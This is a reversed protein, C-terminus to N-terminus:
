RRILTEWSSIVNQLSRPLNSKERDMFQTSLYPTQYTTTSSDTSANNTRYNLGNLNPFRQNELVQKFTNIQNPSLTKVVIPKAKGQTIIIRGDATLETRSRNNASSSSFVINSGIPTIKGLPTFSIQIRSPVGSATANRVIRDGLHYVSNKKQNTVVVKWGYILNATCAQNPSEYIGLCGNFEEPKSDSIIFQNPSQNTEKALSQILKKATSIPLRVRDPNPFLRRGTLQTPNIETQSMASLTATSGIASGIALSGCLLAMWLNPKSSKSSSQKFQSLKFSMM